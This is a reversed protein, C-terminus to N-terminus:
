VRHWEQGGQLCSMRWSSAHAAASPESSWAPGKQPLIRCDLPSAGGNKALGEEGLVTPTLPLPAQGVEESVPLTLPLPAEAFRLQPRVKARNTQVSAPTAGSVSRAAASDAPKTDSTAYSGSEGALRGTLEMLELRLGQLEEAVQKSVQSHVQDVLEQAWRPATEQQPREPSHSSRRTDSLHNLTKKMSQLLKEMRKFEINRDSTVAEAISDCFEDISIQGSSDVDLMKFIHLPNDLTLLSRLTSVDAESGSKLEDWTLMGNGDMDMRRFIKRMDKMIKKKKNVEQVKRAERDEEAQELARNVVVATILNSLVISVTLIAALFYFVLTWDKRVLPAYVASISDMTVFQLMTLMTMGLNPFHEDVIAEFELDVDPGRAHSNNTILEVGVLGLAYLVCVLTVLTYFMTGSSSVLGRIMMWLIPLRVLLHMTKALRLLRAARLIMVNALSNFCEECIILPLIWITVIGLVVLLFDFKAWNDAFCRVGEGGLRICLEFIYVILFVHETINLAVSERGELRFAQEVGIQVSNLIIVAAILVDFYESELVKRCVKRLQDQKSRVPLSECGTMSECGTIGEDSTMSHMCVESHTTQPTDDALQHWKKQLEALESQDDRFDFTKLFSLSGNTASRRFMGRSQGSQKSSSRQPASKESEFVKRQSTSAESEFGKAHARLTGASQSPFWLEPQAPTKGANADEEEAGPSAPSSM